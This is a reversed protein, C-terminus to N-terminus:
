ENQLEICKVNLQDITCYGTEDSMVFIAHGKGESTSFRLTRCYFDTKDCIEEYLESWIKCDGGYKKIATFNKSIADDTIEYSYFTKINNKFCHATEPLERNKCRDLIENISKPEQILLSPLIKFPLVQNKNIVYADVLIGSAFMVILLGVVILIENNKM